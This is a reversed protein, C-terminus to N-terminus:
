ATEEKNTKKGKKKKRKDSLVLTPEKKNIITDKTIVCKEIDERSPIEYMIDLMIEELIGRLGRAGSKREIAKEAVVELAENDIELEVGDMNFLEKYQKVLANKPTTLIEILAEKDLQSLTVLVPLRGVFEPILGFKLLDESQLHKLVEGVDTIEKSQIQAGFGMSKKGIRRQIIKELGDFAGGVIFLINTTDIQIFEQHPHKRGGQPPVSAVTGELIKLLAQQVGEGSVDRTISPNESKRAIKDIEDIYVIGKEAREIDYDAAQILKLLINEVDEGVYGAETLSTADAIAFPVNLIRALTQALLTKGSGTPGIMVINSKQLEIDDTLTKRNIRKYHNYVAVALARKARDQKVVYEDLVKKIDAPKPLEKMDLEFNDEFEEDIIEQCLEICEDCIYVNPGAVLRRVQEQSKGCFSCKLQKEEYKAM